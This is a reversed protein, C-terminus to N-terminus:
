CSVAPRGTPTPRNSRVPVQSDYHRHASRSTSGTPGRAPPSPWNARSSRARKSAVAVIIRSRSSPRSTSMSVRAPPSHAAPGVPKSLTRPSRRAAPHGQAAAAGDPGCPPAGPGRGRGAACGAAGSGRRMFHNARPVNSAVSRGIPPAVVQCRRTAATSTPGSTAALRAKHPHRFRGAGGAAGHAAHSSSGARTGISRCAAATCPTAGPSPRPGPGPANGVGRPSGPTSGDLPASEPAHIGVDDVLALDAPRASLAGLRDLM